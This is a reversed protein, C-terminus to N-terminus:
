VSWFRLLSPFSFSQLFLSVALLPIPPSSFFAITAIETKIIDVKSNKASFFPQVCITWKAIVKDFIQSPM